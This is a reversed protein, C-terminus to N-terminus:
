KLDGKGDKSMQKDYRIFYINNNYTFQGIKDLLFAFKYM